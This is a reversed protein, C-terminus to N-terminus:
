GSRAAYRRHRHRTACQGVGPWFGAAAIWVLPSM